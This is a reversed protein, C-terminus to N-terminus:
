KKRMTIKLNQNLLTSNVIEFQPADELDITEDTQYFQNIGSGGIIKPAYYIILEDVYGQQLFQSTVTPGAEILLKGIGKEYLDSLVNNLSSDKLYIIKVNSLETQLNPNETYILIDSHKDNFIQLNFDIKGKRSLIVRTPHKGNEFRVTYKPNDALVTGYGTLVADHRHRLSYVDQKVEKNTIWQSQGTDIAQKGDLSTSVKMTIEPLKLSKAKFFSSYFLQAEMHEAFEVDIGSAQLIEDCSSTLTQDKAAYIVKKIGTDIIKNVCPPTSGFHTCPELSVYITGGNADNGAMDLAQVEAHKDGKKLHAGIGIIRGEKVVVSGVPPNVGTQGDVM